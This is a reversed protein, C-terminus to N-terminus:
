KPSGSSVTRLEVDKCNPWPTVFKEWLGAEATTSRQSGSSRLPRDSVPFLISAPFESPHRLRLLAPLEGCHWSRCSM